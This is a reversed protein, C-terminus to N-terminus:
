KTNTLSIPNESMSNLYAILNARDKDKRLGVFAMSNGPAFKKPSKLWLNMEDISWNGGLTKLAESYKFGSIEAKSKGLISWLNPGIRNNGGANFGHCASCKSSVKKGADISAIALLEEFSLKPKEKVPQKVETEINAEAIETIGQAGYTSRITKLLNLKKEIIIVKKDINDRNLIRHSKGTLLFNLDNETEIIKNDLENISVVSKFHKVFREQKKIKKKLEERRLVTHNLNKQNNPQSEISFYSEDIFDVNALLEESSPPDISEVFFLKNGTRIIGSVILLTFLVAFFGKIITNAHLNM